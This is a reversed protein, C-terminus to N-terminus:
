KEEGGDSILKFVIRSAYKMDCKLKFLELKDIVRRMIANPDTMGGRLLKIAEDKIQKLQEDTWKECHAHVWGDVAKQFQRGHLQLQNQLEELFQKPPPSSKYKDFLQKAQLKQDNYFKKLAFDFAM